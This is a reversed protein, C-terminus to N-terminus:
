QDALGPLLATMQGTAYAQEIAPAAHQGVTRGTPMLIHALFEQEVTTIGAAVAELKAKIVFALARWVQRVAQEYEREQADQSRLQGRTPTHTFRKEKPNPMPIRFRIHRNDIVFGVTAADRDWGYMFSDAGYRRLNGEIEERSSGSSVDTNAAYRGAM